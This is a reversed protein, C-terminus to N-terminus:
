GARATPVPRAPVVREPRELRMRALRYRRVLEDGRSPSTAAPLLVVRRVDPSATRSTMAIM